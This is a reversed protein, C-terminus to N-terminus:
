TRLVTRCSCGLLLTTANAKVRVGYTSSICNWFEPDQNRKQKMKKGPPQTIKAQRKLRPQKPTTKAKILNECANTIMYLGLSYICLLLKGTPLLHLISNARFPFMSLQQVSSVTQLREEKM